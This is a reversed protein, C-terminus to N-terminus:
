RATGWVLMLMPVAVAVVILSLPLGLRPYDSFRYGGPGMVLTNCQHGIPTLFDSACGIAVAMLFADPRYGLGDAFKAAIPAMVLVTAANNLFPTVAMAAIMILALSGYVPLSAGAVTLGSALVDTAGTTQLAESVPILAALMVLIPGDVADYVERLPIVKFLVMLVAAAFFALAVPVVGTAAAAMAAGLITVPVAGRRVSGLLVTREALPLLDNGRLFEPLTAQKGQLVVIDGLRLVVKGLKQNLRQNKRSVALLNIRYRDFLLMDEASTGILPSHEAVVAEIAAIDGRDEGDLERNQTLSLGAQAVLRDIAEHDGEILLVDNVKLVADPLPKARKGGAGHLSMIVAEGGALRLLDAVTQGAVASTAIVKAEVTYNKIDLAESVSADQRIRTPLIWYFLVLFALGAVTLAAGVPLYDFMAFPEGTLEERVRSVVINPSTGILTMLGGLLAAFSMPMLFVSPSVNSRRAFQIAIPLMIALAGINKIVASLVAVIGVLVALQVRVSMADPLYRKIAHETIGSRAIGASVLLASGVIIVIDDSFGSFADRPAVIGVAVAALLSLAAVVDFRFRGWIFAAMMVAIIALALLQSTTFV